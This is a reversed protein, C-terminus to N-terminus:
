NEQYFLCETIPTLVSGHSPPVMKTLSYGKPCQSVCVASPLADLNCYDMDQHPSPLYSLPYSGKSQLVFLEYERQVKTFSWAHSIMDEVNYPPALPNGLADQGAVSTLITPQTESFSPFYHPLSHV